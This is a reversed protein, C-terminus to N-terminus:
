PLLILLQSSLIRLQPSLPRLTYSYTYRPRSPGCAPRDSSRGQRLTVCTGSASCSFKQAENSRNAQKKHHKTIETTLQLTHITLHLGIQHKNIYRKSRKVPAQFVLQRTLLPPSLHLAGKELTTTDQNQPFKAIVPRPAHKERHREM